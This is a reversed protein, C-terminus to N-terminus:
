SLVNMYMYQFMRAPIGAPVEKLILQGHSQSEKNAEMVTIRSLINSSTTAITLRYGCTPDICPMVTNLEILMSLLSSRVAALLCPSLSFCSDFYHSIHLYVHITPQNTGNRQVCVRLPLFLLRWTCVMQTYTYNNIMQITNPM